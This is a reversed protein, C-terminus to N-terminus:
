VNFAYPGLSLRIFPNNGIPDTTVTAGAPGADVDATVGGVVQQLDEDTLEVVSNNSDNVQPVQNKKTM